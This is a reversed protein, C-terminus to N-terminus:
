CRLGYFYKWILKYFCTYHLGQISVFKM